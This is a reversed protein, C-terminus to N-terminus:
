SPDRMKFPRLKVVYSCLSKRCAHRRQTSICKSFLDDDVPIGSQQKVHLINECYQNSISVFESMVDLGRILFNQSNIVKGKM